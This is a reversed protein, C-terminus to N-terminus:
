KRWLGYKDMTEEGVWSKGDKGGDWIESVERIDVPAEQGLRLRERVLRRFKKNWLRKDQKESEAGVNGIIPTYRRSKSM